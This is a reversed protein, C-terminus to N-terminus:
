LGDAMEGLNEVAATGGRLCKQSFAVHVSGRCVAGGAADGLGNGIAVAGEGEVGGANLGEVCSSGQEFGNSAEWIREM